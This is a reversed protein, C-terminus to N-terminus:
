LDRLPVSYPQVTRDIILPRRTEAERAKAEDWQERWATEQALADDFAVRCEPPLLDKIEDSVAALGRFPALIDAPNPPEYAASAIGSPPSRYHTDLVLYNRTVKPDPPPFMTTTTTPTDNPTAADDRPSSSSSSKSSSPLVPEFVARTPQMHSPVQMTNTHIDYLGVLNGARIASLRSNFVSRV